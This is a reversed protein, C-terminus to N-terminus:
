HEGYYTTVVANKHSVAMILGVLVTFAVLSFGGKSLFPLVIGTLPIYNIVGGINVFVQCSFIMTLAVVALFDFRRSCQFATRIGTTIISLYLLFISLSGIFGLEEAAEAFILDSKSLPVLEPHGLGLGTGSLGGAKLAFLANATQYSKDWWDSSPFGSWFNQWLEMRVAVYDPLLPSATIIIKPILMIGVLGILPYILSKTAVYLMVLMVISYIVVQGLDGLVIFLLLPLATIVFFPGWSVASVNFKGNEFLRLFRGNDAFFGALALPLSIKALEWPVRSYLFKGGDFIHSLVVLVGLCVITLTFLLMYKEGMWDFRRGSFYLVIFALLFLSIIYATLQTNLGRMNFAAIAADGGNSQADLQSISIVPSAAEPAPLFSLRTQLVLGTGMLLILAALPIYSGKYRRLHLVCVVIIFLLQLVAAPYLASVPIQSGTMRTSVYVLLLGAVPLFILLLLKLFEFLASNNDNESVNFKYRKLTVTKM